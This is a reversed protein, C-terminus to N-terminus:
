KKKKKKKQPKQRGAAAERAEEKALARAMRKQNGKHVLISFVVYFITVAGVIVAVTKVNSVDAGSLWAAVLAIMVLLWYRM